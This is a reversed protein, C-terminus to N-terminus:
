AKPKSYIRWMYSLVWKKPLWKFIGLVTSNAGTSLYMIPKKGLAETVVQKAFVSTQTSGPAQSAYIRDMINGLFKSYLSGEALKFLASGAASVNSRVGGPAIHMVSINFPKCEMWLVDSISQVAAKSACYVGNWPTAIEGVISGMNVILGSRRKAMVPIVAKAMRIIGFTNTDFNAKVNELTQDILPGAYFFGANNVLIDIRGEVEVIHKVVQEVAEDDTVDLALKVVHDYSFDGITEVKRSTAYVKCGRRAFENCLAFGIGGTSCGTVLVILSMVTSSPPSLAAPPDWWELFRRVHIVANRGEIHNM